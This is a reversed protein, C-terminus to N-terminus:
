FRAKPGVMITTAATRPDKLMEATYDVTVPYRRFAVGAAEFARTIRRGNESYPVNPAHSIVIGESMDHAPILSGDALVEVKFGAEILIDAIQAAYNKQEAQDSPFSWVHVTDASSPKLSKIISDRQTLSLNRPAAMEKLTRLEAADRASISETIVTSVPILVLLILSMGFKIKSRKIDEAGRPGPTRREILLIM